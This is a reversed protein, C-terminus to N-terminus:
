QPLAEETAGSTVHCQRCNSREPHTTRIERPASPGGHCALCNSRMELGHPIPPPSGPMASQHLAPPSDHQFSSAVAATRDKREGAVHCQRCSELEPHPTVPAYLKMSPVYDGNAHCSLCGKGGFSQPDFIEHPIVPPAGPYARRSYYEALTRKSEINERDKYLLGLRSRAFVGAEVSIVPHPRQGPTLVALDSESRLSEGIVAVAAMMLLSACGILIWRNRGGPAPM